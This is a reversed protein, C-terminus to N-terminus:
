NTRYAKFFHPHGISTLAYAHNTQLSSAMLARGGSTGCFELGKFLKANYRPRFSLTSQRVIGCGNPNASRKARARGIFRMDFMVTEGSRSNTSHDIALARAAGRKPTTGTVKEALAPHDRDSHGIAVVAM